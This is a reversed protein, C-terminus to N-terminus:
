KYFGEIKKSLKRMDKAYEPHLINTIAMDINKLRKYLEVVHCADEEKCCFIDGKEINIDVAYGGMELGEIFTKIIYPTCEIRTIHLRIDRENINEIESLLDNFTHEENSYEEDFYRMKLEILSRLLKKDVNDIGRIAIQEKIKAIM